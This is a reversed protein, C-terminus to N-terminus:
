SFKIIIIGVFMVMISSFKIVSYREGLFVVGIFSGLLVSSTRVAVVLAVSIDFLTFVLLIILYSGVVCPSILLITLKHEKLALVTQDYHFKYLFPFLSLTSLVNMLFIFLFPPIRRVALADVTSYSASCVGVVLALAISELLKTRDTAASTTTTGEIGNDHQLTESSSNEFRNENNDQFAMEVEKSTEEEDRAADGEVGPRSLPNVAGEDINKEDRDTPKTKHFAETCLFTIGSVVVVMGAVALSSLPDDVGLLQLGVATFLIPCGRALPYVL